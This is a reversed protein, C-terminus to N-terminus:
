TTALGVRVHVVQQAGTPRAPRSAPIPLGKRTAVRLYGRIAERTQEIAEDRTDGYTSLNNLSPVYTVWAGHDPDHEIIVDFREDSFQDVANRDMVDGRDDRGRGVVIDIITDRVIM